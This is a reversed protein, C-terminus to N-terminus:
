FHFTYYEDCGGCIGHYDGETQEEYQRRISEFITERSDTFLNGRVVTRNLDDACMPVTGDALVPLERKLHWCPYRLLPSLDVAKMEPVLGCYTDHKQIIVGSTKASWVRYFRDVTEEYGKLRLAQVYVCGPFAATMKEAFANAEEFGDGRLARYEQADAADLLVIWVLRGNGKRTLEEVRAADWRLGATEILVTSAQSALAAEIMEYVRSHCVPDSNMSLSVAFTGSIEAATELLQRFREPPMETGSGAAASLEKPLYVPSQVRADVIQVPYFAPATLLLKENANIFAETVAGNAAAALRRLLLLRRFSDAYLSLRLRRNDHPAIVVSIDYDNIQKEFYPFLSRHPLPAEKNLGALVPLLDTEVTEPCLGSPFGEGYTFDAATEVHENMTKRMLEPDAFPADGCVRLLADYGACVTELATFWSAADGAAVEETRIGDDYSVAKGPRVLRVIDAEGKLSLVADACLQEASRGEFVPERAFRNDSLSDIVAIWKM